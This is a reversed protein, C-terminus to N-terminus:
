EPKSRRMIFLAYSRCTQDSRSLLRRELLVEIQVYMHVHDNIDQLVQRDSRHVLDGSRFLRESSRLVYSSLREVIYRTMRAIDKTVMILRPHNRDNVLVKSTLRTDTEMLVRHNGKRRMRCAAVRVTRANQSLNSETCTILWDIENEALRVIPWWLLYLKHYFLTPPLM